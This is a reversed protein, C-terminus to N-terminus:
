YGNHEDEDDIAGKRALNERCHEPFFPRIIIGGWKLNLGDTRSGKQPPNVRGCGTPAIQHFALADRVQVAM